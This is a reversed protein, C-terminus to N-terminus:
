EFLNVTQKIIHLINRGNVNNLKHKTVLHCDENWTEQRIETSIDREYHCIREKSQIMFLCFEHTRKRVQDSMDKHQNRNVVM